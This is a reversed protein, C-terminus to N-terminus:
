YRKTKNIQEVRTRETQELITDNLTNYLRYAKASTLIKIGRKVLQWELEEFSEKRDLLNRLDARHRVIELVKDLTIVGTPLEVTAGMATTYSRVDGEGHRIYHDFKDIITVWLKKEQRNM